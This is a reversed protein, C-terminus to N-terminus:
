ICWHVMISRCVVAQGPRSRQIPRCRVESDLPHHIIKRNTRGEAMGSGSGPVAQDVGNTTCTVPTVQIFKGMRDGVRDHSLPSIARLVADVSSQDSVNCTVRPLSVLSAHGM